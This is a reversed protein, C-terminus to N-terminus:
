IAKRSEPFFPVPGIRRFPGFAPVMSAHDDCLNSRDGKEEGAADRTPDCWNAGTSATISAGPWNAHNDDVHIENVKNHDRDQDLVTTGSTKQV